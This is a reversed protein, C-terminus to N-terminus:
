SFNMILGPRAPSKFNTKSIHEDAKSVGEVLALMGERSEVELSMIYILFLRDRQSMGYENLTRLLARLEQKREKSLSLEVYKPKIYEVGETAEDELYTEFKELNSQDEEEIAM